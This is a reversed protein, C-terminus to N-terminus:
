GSTTKWRPKMVLRDTLVIGEGENFTHWPEIQGNKTSGWGGVLEEEFEDVTLRTVRMCNVRSGYTATCDQVMRHLHGDKVWMSGAPRSSSADIKVPNLAHAHWPGEIGDAWFIYLADDMWGHEDAYTAFLWLREGYRAVTPDALRLGAIIVAHRQWQTCGVVAKYLSLNRSQGAEPIMYLHGGEQWVFPYSLHWPEQLVTQPKSIAKGHSDIKVASIHGKNTKYPLEEFLIWDGDNHRVFFPDAWFVSNPPQIVTMTEGIDPTGETRKCVEIRWQERLIVKALSDYLLRYLLRWSPVEKSLPAGDVPPTGVDRGLRVLAADLVVPLKDSCRVVSRHLSRHDLRVFASFLLTPSKGNSFKLVQIRLSARPKGLRLRVANELEAMPLNEFEVVLCEGVLEEAVSRSWALSISEAGTRSANNTLWSSISVSRWKGRGFILRDIARYLREIAPKVEQNFKESSIMKLPRLFINWDRRLAAIQATVGRNRLESHPAGILELNRM